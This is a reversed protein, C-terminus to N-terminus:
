PPPWCPATKWSGASPWVSSSATAPSPPSGWSARWSAPSSSRRRGARRDPPQARTRRHRAALLSELWRQGEPRSGRIGWYCNLSGALLLGDSARGGELSWALAARVNDMEADVRDLWIPQQPGNAGLRVCRALDVCWDLHRDRLAPAEGSEALREVAYERLLDLFRYRLAGGDRGDPAEAVVLSQDVLRELLDLVKAATEGAGPHGPGSPAPCVAEAAELTWGGSFVALRRFLTREPGTLLGHSWEVTTRLTQQHAPGEQSGGTLLRFRDDLRAALQVASLVRMRAAALELALPLGDLRRCVEAVAPANDATLAFDPRVAQARQVFLRVAESQALGPLDREAGPQPVSLPPVPLVQEGPLRLAARSTALVRLGPAASLLQPLLPAAGLLHEFTDLVLLLRRPRLVAQLTELPAAGRRRSGWPPASPWWSSPPIPSRPWLSSTCATRTRPALEAALRGALRTKGAGGPGTLTLLRVDPRALLGRAAGLERERGVFSTLPDPLGPSM